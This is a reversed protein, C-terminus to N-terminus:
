FLILVGVEKESSTGKWRVGFITVVVDCSPMPTCISVVEM